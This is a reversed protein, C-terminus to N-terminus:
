KCRYIVRSDMTLSEDDILINPKYSPPAAKLTSYKERPRTPDLNSEYLWTSSSNRASSSASHSQRFGSHSQSNTPRSSSHGPSPSPGPMPSQRGQHPRRAVSKSQQLLSDQRRPNASMPMEQTSSFEHKPNPMPSGHAVMAQRSYTEVKDRHKGKPHHSTLLHKRGGKVPEDVFESTDASFWEKVTSVAESKSSPRQPPSDDERREETKKQNLAPKQVLGSKDASVWERVATKVLQEEGGHRNDHTPPGERLEQLNDEVLNRQQTHQQRQQLQHQGSILSHIQKLTQEKQDLRDETEELAQALRAVKESLIASREKEDWLEKRLQVELAVENAKDQEYREKVQFMKEQYVEVVQRMKADSEYALKNM